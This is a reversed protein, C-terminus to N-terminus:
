LGSSTPIKEGVREHLVVFTGRLNRGSTRVVVVGRRELTPFHLSQDRPERICRGIPDELQHHCRTSRRLPSPIRGSRVATVGSPASLSGRTSTPGAAPLSGTSCITAASTAWPLGVAGAADPGASRDSKPDITGTCPGWCARGPGSAAPFTPSKKLPDQRAVRDPDEGDVLHLVPGPDDTGPADRREQHIQELRRSRLDM